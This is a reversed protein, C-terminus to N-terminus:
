KAVRVCALVSKARLWFCGCVYFCLSYSHLVSVPLSVPFSLPRPLYRQLDLDRAGACLCSTVQSDFSSRLTDIPPKGTKLM